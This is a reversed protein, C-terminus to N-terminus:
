GGGAGWGVRAELLARAVGTFHLRVDSLWKGDSSPEPPSPSSATAAVAINHPSSQTRAPGPRRAAEALAALTSPAAEAWRLAEAHRDDACVTLTARHLAAIARSRVTHGVSVDRSAIIRTLASATGPFVATAMDATGATLVALLADLARRRLAKSRQREAVTLTTQVLVPTIGAVPQLSVGLARCRHMLATITDLVAGQLEERSEGALGPPATAASAASSPMYKTCLIALPQVWSLLVDGDVIAPLLHQFLRLGEEKDAPRVGPSALAAELLGFTGM